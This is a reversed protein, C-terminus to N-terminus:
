QAGCPSVKAGPIGRGPPGTTGPPGMIGPEGQFLFSKILSLALLLPQLFLVGAKFTHNM